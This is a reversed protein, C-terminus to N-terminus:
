DRSSKHATRLASGLRFSEPRTQRSYTRGTCRTRRRRAGTDTKKEESTFSRIVKGDADLLELKAPDKPAEKLYYYLIAGSPPNEGIPYRRPSVHGERTRFTTDPTFLHADEAAITASAQRLPGLGDLVWFSRGHTAVTLADDHIVMDHIPTVPSQAPSAALERRRQVFGLHWNGHRRLAPRQAQSRRARRSRLINDPLGTM